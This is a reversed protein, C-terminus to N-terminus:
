LVLQRVRASNVSKRSSNSSMSPPLFPRLTMQQRLAVLLEGNVAAAADARTLHGESNLGVLERPLSVPRLDSRGSRRRPHM